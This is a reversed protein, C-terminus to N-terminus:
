RSPASCGPGGPVMGRGWTGSTSNEGGQRIHELIDEIIESESFRM